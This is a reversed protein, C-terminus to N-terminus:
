QRWLIIDGIGSSERLQEEINEADELNDCIAEPNLTVEGPLPIEHSSLVRLLERKCKAIVYRIFLEDNYLHHIHVNKVYKLILDKGIEDHIFLNKTFLNFNFAIMNTCCSEYINNESIKAVEQQIYLNQNIGPMMFGNVASVSYSFSSNLQQTVGTNPDFKTAAANKGREYVEIVNQVAMPLQACYSIVPNVPAEGNDTEYHTFHKKEVCGWVTEGSKWYYKFFYKACEKILEIILQQPVEYPIQGYSTIRNQVLNIFEQDFEDLQLSKNNIQVPM